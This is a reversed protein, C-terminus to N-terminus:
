GSSWTVREGGRTGTYTTDMTTMWDMLRNMLELKTEAFGPHEWLNRTEEPDEQMDFLEGEPPKKPVDVHHYLNLKYRTDRFMTCHVPPDFYVGNTGYGTNRYTSVAYDRYKVYGTGQELLGLLNMSHPMLRDTEETPMGAVNLLTAAIDHPQVLHGCKTGPEIVGPYTILFPVRVSPEYFYAGKTILDKDGLQDGHDSVFLVITNERAGREEIARLVKGLQQDMFSVSAHYGFRFARLREDADPGEPLLARERERWIAKPVPELEQSPKQVPPLLDEKVLSAAEEPYDLYPDHPDFFSLKCFFPREQPTNRIFSAAGEAAWTSYHLEAPVHELRKGERVVRDHFSPDRHYLWKAYSNLPSDFHLGAPDLCYEYLDYGDHPHRREAEELRGSVHLKGFLATRYGLHQLHEPFMVQDHPMLDHLKYVGHGPLPKGTLISARSPVCLTNNVYCHDFRVGEKAVRDLNPTSVADNGYCGLTDYRQQDTIIMLINPQPM